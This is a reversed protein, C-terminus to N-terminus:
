NQKVSVTKDLVCTKDGLIYPFWYDAYEVLEKNGHKKILEYLDLWTIWKYDSTYCESLMDDCPEIIYDNIYITMRDQINRIGQETIDYEEKEIDGFGAGQEDDLKLVYHDDFRSLEIHYSFEFESLFEGLTMM